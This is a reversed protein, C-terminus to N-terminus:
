EVLTLRTSATRVGAKLRALYVGSAVPAGADDRGDWTTAHDGAAHEAGAVLTRVLRGRLDHVTLTVTSAAPLSFELQTSPNFPNPWAGLALAPRPRPATEPADNGEGAISVPDWGGPFFEVMLTGRAYAEGSGELEAIREGVVHFTHNGAEVDYVQTHVVNDSDRRHDYAEVMVNGEFLAWHVEPNVAIVARDGPDTAVSGVYRVVARGRESAEFEVQAMSVPGDDLEFSGSFPTAAFGVGGPTTPYDVTILDGYVEAWGTGDTQVWNEAVAHIRLEDGWTPWARAHAFAMRDVAENPAAVSVTGENPEWDPVRNVALVILDGPSSVAWGEFLALAHGEQTSSELRQTQLVKVGGRLDRGRMDVPTVQVVPMGPEDPFFRVTLNAKLWIRGPGTAGGPIQAYAQFTFHGPDVARHLTASFHGRPVDGDVAQIQRRSEGLAQDRDSLLLFHIPDDPYSLCQGDFTVLFTGPRDVRVGVEELMRPAGSVEIDALHIGRHWVAARDTAQAPVALLVLWLIALVRPVRCSHLASRHSM